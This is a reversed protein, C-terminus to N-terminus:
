VSFVTRNHKLISKYSNYQGTDSSQTMTYRNTQVKGIPIGINYVFLRYWIGNLCMFTGYKIINFDNCCTSVISCTHIFLSHPSITANSIILDNVM